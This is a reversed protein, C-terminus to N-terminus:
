LFVFFTNKLQQIIFMYLFKCLNINKCKEKEKQILKKVTPLMFIQIMFQKIASLM